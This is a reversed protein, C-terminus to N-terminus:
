SRWRHGSHIGVIACDCVAGYSRSDVSNALNDGVLLYRRSVRMCDAGGCIGTGTVEFVRKVSLRGSVEGSRGKWTSIIQTGSSCLCSRPVGHDCRPPVFVVIDGVEAEGAYSRHTFRLVSGDPLTPMMSDGVIRVAGHTICYYIGMVISITIVISVATLMM